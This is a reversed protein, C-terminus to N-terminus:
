KKKLTRVHDVYFVNKRREELKERTEWRLLLCSFCFFVWRSREKRERSRGRGKRRLLFPAFRQLTYPINMFVNIFEKYVLFKVLM